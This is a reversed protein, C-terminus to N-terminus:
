KVGDLLQKAWRRLAPALMEFFAALAKLCNAVLEIRDRERRMGICEQLLGVTAKWHHTLCLPVMLESDRQWAVTHHQEILSTAIGHAKAWKATVAKLAPEGCIVCCGSSDGLRQLRRAERLATRNPDRDM